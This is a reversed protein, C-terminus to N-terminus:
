EKRSRDKREERRREKLEDDNLKDGTEDGVYSEEFEVDGEKDGKARKKQKKGTDDTDAVDQDSKSKKKSRKKNDRDKVKTKGGNEELGEIEDEDKQKGLGGQWDDGRKFRANDSAHEYASDNPSPGKGVTQSKGHGQSKKAIAACPALILTICCIFILLQKM